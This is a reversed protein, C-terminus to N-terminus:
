RNKNMDKRKPIPYLNTLGSTFVLGHVIGNKLPIFSILVDDHSTIYALGDLVGHKFTGRISQYEITTCLGKICQHTPELKLVAYGQFLGNTDLKGLYEFTIDYTDFYHLVAEYVNGKIHTIDQLFPSAQVLNLNDYPMPLPAVRAMYDMIFKPVQDAREEVTQGQCLDNKEFKYDRIGTQINYEYAIGSGATAIVLSCGYMKQVLAVNVDHANLVNPDTPEKQYGGTVVTMNVSFLTVANGAPTKLTGNYQFAGTCHVYMAEAKSPWYLWCPESIQNVKATGVMWKDEQGDHIKFMGHVAGYSVFTTLHVNQTTWSLNAAGYAFGDEFQGQIRDPANSLGLIEDNVIICRQQEPADETIVVTGNGELKFNASFTGDFFYRKLAGKEHCPVHRILLHQDPILDEDQGFCFKPLNETVTQNLWSRIKDIKEVDSEQEKEKSLGMIGSTDLYGQSLSPTMVLLLWWIM